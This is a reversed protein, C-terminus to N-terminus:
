CYAGPRMEMEHQTIRALLQLNNSFSINICCYTGAVQPEFRSSSSNEVQYSKLYSTMCDYKTSM